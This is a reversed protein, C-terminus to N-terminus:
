IMMFRHLCMLINKLIAVYQGVEDDTCDVGLNVYKPSIDIGININRTEQVKRLSVEELINKAHDDRTFLSESQICNKLVVVIDNDEYEDDNVL